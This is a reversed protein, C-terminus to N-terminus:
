SSSLVQLEKRVRKDEVAQTQTLKDALVVFCRGSHLNIYCPRRHSIYRLSGFIQLKFDKSAGAFDKSLQVYRAWVQVALPGELRHLYQELFDFLTIDM